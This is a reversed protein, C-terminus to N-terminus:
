RTDDAAAADISAEARELVKPEALAHALQEEPDEGALEGLARTLEEDTPAVGHYANEGEMFSVGKGKVTHAIICAPARQQVAWQLADIVATMSHGDIERTRWGMAQWKAALPDLDIIDAIAGDLQYKNYDVIAVLNDPAHHGAALAAEWVQGEQCEGDGLLVFVRYEKRDLRAALAMGLAISLGQGLSGTSAEIGPTAGLVPHGQLRSDIRRLTRLEAIPLFGAEALAAYQVPVGHGKSLVFRDRDPWDPRAPDYRLFGGFYLATVIEVASLSGGPHGSAAEHLMEVIHRRIMRARRRLAAPDPQPAASRAMSM